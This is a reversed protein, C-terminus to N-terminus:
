KVFSVVDTTLFTTAVSCANQLAVRLVKAPDIIGREILNCFEDNLADYGKGYENHYIIPPAAEGYPKKGANDSIQKSIAQIAMYVCFLGRQYDNVITKPNEAALGKVLPIDIPINYCAGNFTAGSGAVYGEENAARCAKIADDVRDIKERLETVSGAGVSLVAVGCSISSIRDKIEQKRSPDTEEDALVTLGAVRTQIAEDSGGGKIILTHGLGIEAREASGLHEITAAELKINREESIVLAGVYTALDTTYDEMARGQGPCQVACMQIVGNVHNQVVFALAQEDVEPAIILVPRREKKAENTKLVLNLIPALQKLQRLPRESILIYPNELIAVNRREHTIFEKALLGRQHQMGEVLNFSTEKSVSEVVSVVGNEGAAYAAQAIISGLEKDNNCSITAIKKLLDLNGSVPKSKSAIYDVVYRTGDIIGRKLENVNVTGTKLYKVGYSVLEQFLIASTSTNHTVIYNDTIYLNDPNTVQICQMETFQGTKEINYIALGKKRGQREFLRYIPTDSYSGGKRKMKAIKTQKGLSRCLECFDEALQPSITTFEFLGRNNVYGDTDMLGCFLRERSERSSYLYSKPIFKNGSRVGFLGIKELLTKIRVGNDDIGVFKVRFYNKREVYSTNFYIGKPLIIKNLVHEKQLGLSLEISGTGSLSGDGLLLGILYPDLPMENIDETFEVPTVPIYFNRNLFGGKEMSVKGSDVMQRVTMVEKEKKDKQTICWLHDECCEVIRGDSFHIKYIEKQGKPFIAAVNQITGDTGCIEDGVQLSGMEVFGTPTLVKSYLPQPGDGSAMVTQFAVEKVLDGGAKEIPDELFISRAVTVGDKSIHSPGSQKVMMVNRGRAGLTKRVADATKDIGAKVRDRAENGFLIQNEM